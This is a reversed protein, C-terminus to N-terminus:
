RPEVALFVFHVVHFVNPNMPIEPEACEPISVLDRGSQQTAALAPPVTIICAPSPSLWTQPHERLLILCIPALFQPKEATLSPSSAIQM